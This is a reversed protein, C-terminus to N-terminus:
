GVGVLKLADHFNFFVFIAAMLALILASGLFISTKKPHEIGLETIDSPILQETIYFFVLLIFIVGFTNCFQEM